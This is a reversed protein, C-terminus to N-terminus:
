TEALPVSARVTTGRDKATEVELDGGLLSLRERMAVLGFGNANEVGGDFGIGDDEVVAVVEDGRRSVQVSARTAGAHKMVNTLAEQVMRYLASEVDPQMRKTLQAELDIQVTGLENLREVLRALAPELGFDDLAKPRLDFALRRVNELADVALENLHDAANHCADPTDAAKVTGIGLVISTLAQGTEDHLERALRRREDEQAHLARRLGDQEVRQSLDLALAARDAFLEGVRLDAESFQQLDGKPNCVALLGLARGSVILPLMAVARAEIARALPDQDFEADDLAFAVREAHGRNLVRGWKSGWPDVTDGTLSEPVRGAVADVHMSHDSSQLILLAA